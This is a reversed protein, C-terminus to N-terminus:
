FCPMGIRSKIQRKLSISDTPKQLSEIYEKVNPPLEVLHKMKLNEIEDIEEEALYKNRNIDSLDLIMSHVPSSFFFSMLINKLFIACYKSNM